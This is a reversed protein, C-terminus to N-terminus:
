WKGFIEPAVQGDAVDLLRYGFLGNLAHKKDFVGAPICGRLRMGFGKVGVDRVKFDRGRCFNKFSSYLEQTSLFDDPGAEKLQAQRWMKLINDFDMPRLKQATDWDLKNQYLKAPNYNDYLDAVADIARSVIADRDALLENLMYPKRDIEPLTKGGKILWVRRQLGGSQDEIYPFQNGFFMLFCRPTIVRPQRYKENVTFPECTITEKMYPSAKRTIVSGIERCISLHVRALNAPSYKDSFGDADLAAIEGPSIIKPILDAITSKGDAPEGIFFVAKQVRRFNSIAVGLAQFLAFYDIESATARRFFAESTPALVANEVYKADVQVTLGLEPKAAVMKREKLDIVGNRLGIFQEAERNLDMCVDDKWLMYNYVDRLVRSDLVAFEQDAPCNNILFKPFEEELPLPAFVGSKGMKEYRFITKDRKGFVCGINKAIGFVRAIKAERSKNDIDQEAVAMKGTSMNVAERFAKSKANDRVIIKEAPSKWEATPNIKESRRVFGGFRCGIKDKIGTDALAEVTPSTIESRRIFGTGLSRRVGGTCTAPTANNTQNFAESRRIFPRNIQPNQMSM